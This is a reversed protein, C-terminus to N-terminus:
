LIEFKKVNVSLIRSGDELIDAQVPLRNEGLCVDVRLTTDGYLDDISICINENEKGSYAIFGSRLANLLVWPTSVPSMLDDALYPFFLVAEDFIIQGGDGALRGSIGSISDPYTVVFSINGSEEATCDMEFCSIHDNYDATIEVTFRCCESQLLMRRLEMADDLEESQGGCGVLMGMALLVIFWKRLLM